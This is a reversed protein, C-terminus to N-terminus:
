LGSSSFTSFKAFNVHGIEPKGFALKIEEVCSGDCIQHIQSRADYIFIVLLVLKICCNHNIMVVHLLVCGSSRCVSM